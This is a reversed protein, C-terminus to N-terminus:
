SRTALKPRLRNLPRLIAAREERGLAVTLLALVYAGGFLTIVGLLEFGGRPSWIEEAVILVPAALVAATLPPLIADRLFARIPLDAERLAVWVYLPELCAIPIALALAMGTIELRPVLIVALILNSLSWIVHYRTFRKVRGIGLLLGLAVVHNNGIVLAVLLIRLSTASQSFDQGAWLVLIPEAFVFLPLAVLLVIANGYSTGRLLLRRVRDSDGTVWARSAEPLVANMITGTIDRLSYYIRWAATYLTVFAVPLFLGIIYSNTELILLGSIGIVFVQASYPLMTRLVGASMWKPMLSLGPVLKLCWVAATLSTLLVITVDAIVVPIISKWILLVVVIAVLRCMSQAIMLFNAIDMRHLGTLFMRFVNMPLGLLLTGITVLGFVLALEGRQSDHVEFGNWSLFVVGTFILSVAVGLVGFFALTSVLTRNMRELQEPERPDLEAVYKVASTGMGLDSGVFFTIIGSALLWIGYEELGVQHSIFPFLFLSSAVSLIRAAYSSVINRFLPSV